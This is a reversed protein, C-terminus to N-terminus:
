ANKPNAISGIGIKERLRNVKKIQNNDLKYIALINAITKTNTAHVLVHIDKHLIILNHYKDDGGLSKPLKHHCHIVEFSLPIGLVACKGQQACYLSIRNDMYEVSNNTFHERMMRKLFEYNIGLNKHILERGKATYQCIDKNKYMPNKHQIYSIPLIPMGDIFRLCKSAGYRSKVLENNVVGHKSIHGRLRNWFVFRLSNHITDCDLTISTAIRFYNHIGLVMSNYMRVEFERENANRPHEIKCIQNRLKITSNKIAKNSMRSRVVYKHAKPVAKLKFGLFESYSKKLNVIQSKEPSIDLSLREKLWLKTAELIAHADSYNRCFIKFDDAYRVIYMEKLNSKRLARYKSSQQLSGDKNLKSLYLHNSPFSEWQSAVWWDLENLVINSLLPSLIGGQPTGKDPFIVSGDPMHIPAKLMQGIICLLKKDHIGFSWIQKLLKAHNVNDFFSKIDIDVVYTLQSQNIMKYCQTIAHEVSRNPRFGNNREHFKAECIPELVQLICQQILRDWMTPIGLPRTKGNAKPIDVRKVAKPVYWNFKARMIELYKAKPLTKIYKISKGDMGPTFSGDNSKINRYALLMNEESTIIQMLSSFTHGNLSLAYLEDFTDQMDYYESHRIKLKKATQKSSILM